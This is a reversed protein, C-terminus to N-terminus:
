HYFNLAFIYNIPAPTNKGSLPIWPGAVMGINSNISYELAPAISFTFNSPSTPATGPPSFGSFTTKQVYEYMVDCALTLQQTLQYEVSGSTTLTYGPHVKGVTSAVGGYVSEGKVDVPTSFASNFFARWELYHGNSLTHLNSFVVGLAPSFNGSGGADTQLATPTLEDYKGLPLNAGLRLKIAPHLSNPTGSAMQFGLALPMDGIRYCEQHQTKHYLWEFTIDAEVGPLIGLQASAQTLLRSDLPIKEQHGQENYVHHTQILYVYPEYNQHGEPVTHGSPTLLPGIFWPAKTLPESSSPDQLLPHSPKSVATQLTCLTIVGILLYSRM